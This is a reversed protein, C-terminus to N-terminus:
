AVVKKRQYAARARVRNCEACERHGNKRIMINEKIFPHGQNCHSRNDINHRGAMINERQKVLRMHEVNVCARHICTVGGECEKPNHCTHDIVLGEPIEGNAEIWAARHAKTIKGRFLTQGYGTDKISKDWIICDSV